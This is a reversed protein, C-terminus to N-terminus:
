LGERCALFVEICRDVEDDALAAGSPLCLGRAAISETRPLAGPGGRTCSASYPSFYPFLHLPVFFPRTEVGRELMRALLADRAEESALREDILAHLWPVVVQGEPVAAFRVGPVSSLAARYRAHVRRKRAFLDGAHELQGCGVAAQLNTMRYNFGLEPHFYRRRPDMAHNKLFRLRAGLAEDDTVVAGGEGTTITKNGFFSFIAADALSGSPRGDATSGVAEAADEVLKVDDRGLRRLGARLAGYDALVGFLDVGIIARTRATVRALADAPDIVWSREDIECFVPTAGTYLVANGTAVFTESPLIVEDGPGVGIAHLLLHLAVTGNACSEVHRAGCLAGFAREFRGILEGASSIWGSDIAELVYARESSGLVPACVPIRPTM